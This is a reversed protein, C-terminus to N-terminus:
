GAANVPCRVDSREGQHTIWIETRGAFIQNADIEASPEPAPAREDTSHLLQPEPPAPEM